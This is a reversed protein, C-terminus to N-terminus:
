QFPDKIQEYPPGDCVSYFVDLLKTVPTGEALPTYHHLVIRYVYRMSLFPIEGENVPEAYASRNLIVKCINKQEDTLKIWVPMFNGKYLDPKPSM